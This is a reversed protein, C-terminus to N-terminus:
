AAAEPETQRRQLLQLAKSRGVVLSRQQLDHRRNDEVIMWLNPREEALELAQL